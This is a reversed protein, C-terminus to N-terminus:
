PKPLRTFYLLQGDAHACGAPVVFVDVKNAKSSPLVVILAPKGQYSAYDLALPVGSESPDTLSALCRALGATDRLAALPDGPAAGAFTTADTARAVVARRRRRTAVAWTATTATSPPPTVAM